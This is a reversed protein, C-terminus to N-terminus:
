FDLVIGGVAAWGDADDSNGAVEGDYDAHLISGAIKVGPGLTKSVSAMWSAHKDNDTVAIASETEGKFYSLSVAMDDFAYAIGVDYGWGDLSTTTSTGSARVDDVASWSAGLTFGAFGINAGLSYGNPDPIGAVGSKWTAYGGALAIDVTDITRTYNLGVSLGDSYGAKRDPQTGSFQSSAPIYSVGAQLGEFRPTYYTLKEYEGETLYLFTSFYPSATDAGTPDNIWAGVDGDNLGIGVDPATYQMATAAASNAGLEVRGFAGGVHIYSADIYNMADSQGEGELEVVVGVTIGNDFKTEGLFYIETDGKIDTGDYDVTTSAQNNNAYGFWQESFGGVGLKIPEAASAPGMPALLGAALLGAGALSASVVPINKM